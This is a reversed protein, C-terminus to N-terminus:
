SDSRYVSQYLRSHSLCVSCLWHSRQVDPTKQEHWRSAPSSKGSRHSNYVWKRVVRRFLIPVSQFIVPMYGHARNSARLYSIGHREICSKSFYDVLSPPCSPSSILAHAAPSTPLRLPQSISLYLPPSTLIHLPQSVSLNPPPSTPLHLPSSASLNLPSSTPLNLLSPHTLLLFLCNM